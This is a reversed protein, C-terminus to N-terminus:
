AKILIRGTRRNEKNIGTIVRDVLTENGIQVVVQIPESNESGSQMMAMMYAMAQRIGEAVAESIKSEPAVIEGERKNDGIVALQPQNAKVFGGEALRPIKLDNIKPASVSLTKWNSTDTFLGAVRKAGEIISNVTGIFKSVVISILGNLVTIAGNIGVELFGLMTNITSKVVTKIGEWAKKWDGTFVGTFFNLFGKLTNITGSISVAIFEIINKVVAVINNAVALIPPGFRTILHDIFPKLFTNWLALIFEGVATLLGLFDNFVGKLYGDWLDSVESKLNNFFPLLIENWLRLLLSWIDTLATVFGGFVQSFGGEWWAKISKGMDSLITGFLSMYGGFFTLTNTLSAELYAENDAVWKDIATYAEEIMGLTVTLLSDTFDVFGQAIDVFGQKLPDAANKVSRTVIGFLRKVLRQIPAFTKKLSSYLPSFFDGLREKFKDLKGMFEDAKKGAEDFISPGTSMDGWDFSGIDGVVNNGSSDSGVKHIKDFGLIAKNAITAQKATEATNEALVGSADAAISTGKATTTAEEAVGMMRKVMSTFVAAVTTMKQILTNLWQILPTLLTIFGSGLTSKLEDWRLKLVRTQNAWGDSTKAFDGQANKLKDMVFHYRLAVKESESMESTTKGFGNAMAFSDLATQTMVVGLSKLSETEGTFIAKLKNFAEETDLNYFSAVDATLGTIARAMDYAQSESYDFAKAMAGITGMYQKAVLESLGYSDMASQAFSDVQSEMNTFVTDVVNEVEQLDSALDISSSVFQGMKNLLNNLLSSAMNALFNSLFSTLGSFQKKTSRELGRVQQNFRSSDLGLGLDIQGINTSSM